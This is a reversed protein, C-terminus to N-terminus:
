ILKKRFLVRAEYSKKGKNEKSIRKISLGKCAQNM